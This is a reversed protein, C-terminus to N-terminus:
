QEAAISELVEGFLELTEPDTAARQEDLQERTARAPTAADGELSRAREVLWRQAVEHLVNISNGKCAPALRGGERCAKTIAPRSIGLRRAM